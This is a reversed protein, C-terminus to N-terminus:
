GYALVTGNFGSAVQETIPRVLAEYLDATHSDPGFAATYPILVPAATASGGSGGGLALPAVATGDCAVSFVPEAPEVSPPSLRARSSLPLLCEVATFRYGM